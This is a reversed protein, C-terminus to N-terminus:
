WRVVEESHQILLRSHQGYAWAVMPLLAPCRQAVAALMCDRRVTNFANQWDIQVHHQGPRRCNWRAPRPRRHIGSYICDAARAIRVASRPGLAVVRQPVFITSVSVSRDCLLTFWNRYAPRLILIETGKSGAVRQILKRIYVSNIMSTRDALRRTLNYGKRRSFISLPDNRTWTQKM